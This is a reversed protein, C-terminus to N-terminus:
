SLPRPMRAAAGPLDYHDARGCLRPRQALVAQTLRCPPLRRDRAQRSRNRSGGNSSDCASRVPFVIMWRVPAPVWPMTAALLGFPQIGAESTVAAAVARASSAPEGAEIVRTAIPLLAMTRVSSSPSHARWRRLRRSPRGAIGLGTSPSGRRRRFRASGRDPGGGGADRRGRCLARRRDSRNRLGRSGPLLAQRDGVSVGFHRAARVERIEISM